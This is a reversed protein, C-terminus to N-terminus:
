PTRKGERRESGKGRAATKCTAASAREPSGEKDPMTTRPATSDLGGRGRIKTQKPPTQPTQQPTRTSGTGGVLACPLSPACLSAIPRAQPRADLPCGYPLWEHRYDGQRPQTRPPGHRRGRTGTSIPPPVYVPPCSLHLLAPLLSSKRDAEYARQAMRRGRRPSSGQTLVELGGTCCCSARLLSPRWHRWGNSGWTELFSVQALSQPLHAFPIPVLPAM